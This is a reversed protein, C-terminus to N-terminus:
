NNVERSPVGVVTTGSRVDTLVVSGMGIVSGDGVEVGQIVSAKTGILCGRGVKVGGSLNVNWYLSSFKDISSDHGIGCSPNLQVFDSITCNVSVFCGWQVIVGKGISAYDSVKAEPHILTPFIANPKIAKIKNYILEKIRPQSITIIFSPSDEEIDSIYDIGGLVKTSCLEQGHLLSDDDLIGAINWTHSLKNIDCILQVTERGVGGAGFIYIDKM